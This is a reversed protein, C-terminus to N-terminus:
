IFKQGNDKITPQLRPVQTYQLKQHLVLRRHLAAPIHGLLALGHFLIHCSNLTLYLGMYDLLAFLFM